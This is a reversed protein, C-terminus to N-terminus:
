EKHTLTNQMWAKAMALMAWGTSPPVAPIKNAEVADCCGQKSAVKDAASSLVTQLVADDDAVGKGGHLGGGVAPGSSSGDSALLKCRQRIERVAVYILAMWTAWRIYAVCSKAPRFVSSTLGQLPKPIFKSATRSAQWVTEVATIFALSRTATRCYVV